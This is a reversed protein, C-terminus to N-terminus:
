PFQHRLSSGFQPPHGHAQSTQVMEEFVNTAPALLVVHLPIPTRAQQAARPSLSSLTFLCPPAVIVRSTMGSFTGGPAARPLVALM